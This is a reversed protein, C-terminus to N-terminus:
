TNIGTDRIYVTCKWAHECICAWTQALAAPGVANNLPLGFAVENATVSVVPIGVVYFAHHLNEPGDEVLQLRALGKGSQCRSDLVPRNM